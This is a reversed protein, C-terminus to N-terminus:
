ETARGAAWIWCQLYTSRPSPSCPLTYLLGRCSVCQLLITDTAFRHCMCCTFCSHLAHGCWAIVQLNFITIASINEALLASAGTDTHFALVQGYLKEEELTKGDYSVQALLVPAYKQKHHRLLMELAKHPAEGEYAACQELTTQHQQKHAAYGPFNRKDRHAIHQLANCSLFAHSLEHACFPAIGWAM